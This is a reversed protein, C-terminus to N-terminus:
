RDRRVGGRCAAVRRVVLFILATCIFPAFPAAALFLVGWCVLIVAREGALFRCSLNDSVLFSAAISLICLDYALVYPTVIVSSACLCAAKL